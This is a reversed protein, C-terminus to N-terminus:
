LFTGKFNISYFKLGEKSSDLYSKVISISSFVVVMLYIIQWLTIVYITIVYILKIFVSKIKYKTNIGQVPLM